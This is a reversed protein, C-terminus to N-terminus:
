IEMSNFQEDALKSFESGFLAIDNKDLAQKLKLKGLENNSKRMFSLVDLSMPFEVFRGSASVCGILFYVKVSLDVYGLFKFDSDSVMRCIFDSCGKIEGNAEVVHNYEPSTFTIIKHRIQAYFVSM